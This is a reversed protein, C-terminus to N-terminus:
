CSIAYMSILTMVLFFITVTIFQKLGENEKM